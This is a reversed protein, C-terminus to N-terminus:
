AADGAPLNNHQQKLFYSLGRALGKERVHFLAVNGADALKYMANELKGLERPRVPHICAYGLQEMVGTCISEIKRLQREPIAGAFKNTNGKMISTMGRADGHREASKRLSMMEPQFDIGCFASVAKLTEEPRDLLDEYRVEHYAGELLTAYGRSAFIFDRWRQAARYINKHWIRHVSLCYDRPDRIIHIFRASPFIKKLRPVHNLYGPTKDGWLVDDGSPACYHLLIFRLVTTWTSFDGHELFYATTLERGKRKNNIYFTTNMFRDIFRRRDQIDDLRLRDGFENALYPIFHSEVDPICVGSHRNLLDRLLKTGSRPMGVIFLPGNHSRTEM